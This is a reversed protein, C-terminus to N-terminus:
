MMLRYTARKVREVSGEKVLRALISRVTHHYNPQGYTMKFDYDVLTRHQRVELYVTQLDVTEPYHAKLVNVVAKWWELNAMFNVEKRKEYYM